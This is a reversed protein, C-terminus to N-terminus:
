YMMCNSTKGIGMLTTYTKAGDSWEMYKNQSVCLSTTVNVKSDSTDMTIYLRQTAMAPFMADTFEADNFVVTGNIDNWHTEKTALLNSPDITHKYVKLTTEGSGQVNHNIDFAFNKLTAEYGDESWNDFDLIAITQEASKSVFGEPSIAGAISSAWSSSFRARRVERPTSDWTGQIDAQTGADASTIVPKTFTDDLSIKFPHGLASGDTLWYSLVDADLQITLKDDKELQINLNEFLMNENNVISTAVPTDEGNVTLYTYKFVNNLGVPKSGLSELRFNLTDIIFDEDATFSLSLLEANEQGTRYYNNIPFLIDNYEVNVIPTTVLAASKQEKVPKKLEDYKNSPNKREATNNSKKMSFLGFFAKKRHPPQQTTEKSKERHENYAPLAGEDRPPREGRPMAAFGAAIAAFGALLAIAIGVKQGVTAHVAVASAQSTKTTRNKAAKKKAPM